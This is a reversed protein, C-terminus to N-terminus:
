FSKNYLLYTTLSGQKNPLIAINFGETKNSTKQEVPKDIVLPRFAGWYYGVGFLLIGLITPKNLCSLGTGCTIRDYTFLAIGTGQLALQTVAGFSDDMILYSGLGFGPFINLFAAGAREGDTYNKNENEDESSKFLDKSPPTYFNDLTDNNYMYKMYGKKAIPKSEEVEANVTDEEAFTVSILVIIVLIIKHM